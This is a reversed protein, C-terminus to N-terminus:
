KGQYVLDTNLEGTKIFFACYHANEKIVKNSSKGFVEVYGAADIKIQVKDGIDMRRVTYGLGKEIKIKVNYGKEITYSEETSIGKEVCSIINENMVLVPSTAYMSVFEKARKWAEPFDEKSIQFSLPFAMAKSYYKQQSETLTQMACGFLGVVLLVLLVLKKM